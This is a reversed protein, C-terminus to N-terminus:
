AWTTIEGACKGALVSRAAEDPYTSLHRSALRRGFQLLYVNSRWKEVEPLFDQLSEIFAEVSNQSELLARGRLGRAFYPEPNEAFDQLHMTIDEAEHEPRVFSVCDRPLTAYFATDTVLSPLSHNWIRLLTASSEGRSPWRLNMALDSEALLNDLAADTVYGALNVHRTLGLIQIWNKVEADPYIGALTISFRDRVLLRSFAELFPQLRRNTSGLFGFILIRYPEGDRRSRRIEPRMEARITYPLPAYLIPAPTFRELIDANLPNHTIIGAANELVYEFLPFDASLKNADVERQELFAKGAEEAEEGGYRHLIEFYAPRGRGKLLCLNLITEHIALDHMVVIGPCKRAALIIEGHFHINNGIHYVPMGALNLAKWDMNAACFTHVPCYAGLSSEWNGTETFIELDFASTLSPLMRASYNGIETHDPPLPTFWSLKM